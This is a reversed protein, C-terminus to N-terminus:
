QIEGFKQQLWQEQWPRMMRGRTKTNLSKRFQLLADLEESDILKKETHTELLGVSIWEYITSNSSLNAYKLAEKKTLYRKGNM